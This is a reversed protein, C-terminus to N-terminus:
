FGSLKWVQIETDTDYKRDRIFLKNRDFKVSVFKWISAKLKSNSVAQKM